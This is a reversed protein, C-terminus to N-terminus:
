QSWMETRGCLPGFTKTGGGFGRTCGVTVSDLQNVGCLHRQPVGKKNAMVTGGTQSSNHTHLVKPHLIYGPRDGINLVAYAEDSERHM